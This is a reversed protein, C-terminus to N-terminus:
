SLTNDYVSRVSVTDVWQGGTEDSFVTFTVMRSEGKKLWFGNESWYGLVDNTDYELWVWGAVAKTATVAWSNSGSQTLKLGPDQLNAQGLYLPHFVQSHKFSGATISLFLVANSANVNNNTLTQRLNPYHLVQTTQTFILRKIAISAFLYAM